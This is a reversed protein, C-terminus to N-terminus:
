TVLKGVIPARGNPMGQLMLVPGANLKEVFAPSRMDEHSSPRPVMYGGPPIALPRLAAMVEDERPVRPYDGKHWPSTMHIISSVIFVIVSSLLVPLWLATLSVM